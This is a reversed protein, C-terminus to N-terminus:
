PKYLQVFQLGSRLLEPNKFNIFNCPKCVEFIM